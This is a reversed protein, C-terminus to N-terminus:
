PVGMSSPGLAWAACAALAFALRVMWTRLAAAARRVQPEASAAAHVEAKVHVGGATFDLLAHRNDLEEVGAADLPVSDPFRGPANEGSEPPVGAPECGLDDSRM